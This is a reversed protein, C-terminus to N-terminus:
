KIESKKELLMLLIDHLCSVPAYNAISNILTHFLSDLM